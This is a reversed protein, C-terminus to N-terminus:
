ETGSSLQKALEDSLVGLLIGCALGIATLLAGAISTSAIKYGVAGAAYYAANGIFTGPIFGLIEAHAQWCMIAAFLIVFLYYPLSSFVSCLFTTLIGWFVGSMNSCLGLKVGKKGGGAAFYTAWGLFGVFSLLGTQDAVYCWVGALIGVTIGVAVLYTMKEGKQLM